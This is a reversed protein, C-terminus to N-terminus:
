PAKVGKRQNCVLHTWQLNAQGHTGGKALPVIHDLSKSMPDPHRTAPCIPEACLACEGTWLSELDVEGIVVSAVQARRKRAREKAPGPDEAYRQRAQARAAEPDRDYVRQAAQRALERTREQNAARYAVLAARAAGKNAAYRTSREVRRCDRCWPQLGDARRANRQFNSVPLYQGCKACSKGFISDAM